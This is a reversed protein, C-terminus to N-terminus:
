VVTVVMVGLVSWEEWIFVRDGNFVLEGMVKGWAVEM